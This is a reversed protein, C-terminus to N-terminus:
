IRGVWGGFGWGIGGDEARVRRSILLCAVLRVFDFFRSGGLLFFIDWGSALGEGRLLM